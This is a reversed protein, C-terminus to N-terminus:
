GFGEARASRKQHQLGGLVRVCGVAHGRDEFDVARETAGVYMLGADVERCRADGPSQDLFVQVGTEMGSRQGRGHGMFRADPPAIVDLANSGVRYGALAQLKAGGRRLV